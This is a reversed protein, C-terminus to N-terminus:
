TVLNGNARLSNLDLGTLGQLTLVTTTFNGTGATDIRVSTNGGSELLNVYSGLTLPNNDYGPLLADLDIVDGGAGATFSIVSDPGGTTDGALYRFTDVGSGGTLTDAGQGGILLDDNNGGLLSDNGTGGTLTDNGDSGNLTDNGTGGTISNALTNGTGTFNGAGTFALNEVNGLAAISLTTLSTRIEDTGQSAAEIVTDGANDVIFIDNGLGGVLSDAGTGGNLTDNGDGGNLTDAGTSGTISNAATNGTGTFAAAGTYTLNEVNGLAAISLTALTTRIEDVGQAAAEVVIDGANDVIFVDDGLGGVLSDTGTGGNLTDNGDGGNLTDNGTGGTISNALTNGTGTFAGAGTFTLNEINILSALTQTTLSTRIEDTGQGSLETVIDGVNDTLFVDNGLGGVLTDAGTGGNLTDNGSGGTIVNAATNGTGTFNGAGVFTLNEVNALAAITQTTLTTRIEDTGESAAEVVTDTGSNVFYIDNGLGGVMSDNGLGGNLTDDGGNGTLTDNGSGGTISNNLSNGTGTFASAGTYTLNEVNNISAITFTTLATQIEDTGQASLETVTDAVTDVIYVDNGLGGVLTDAGAGGNLTDNGVGGTILNALTNGTGTFDGTGAFSLREINGLAAISYGTLLSRVEDTGEAAAEVVTDLASDVIFVDDGTGGVLSDNGTGGDLTDNDGGGTLTDNLAGGALLNALSDGTLSDAQASGTVNEISLLSDGAADGGSHTNTGLNVTVGLLSASYDVTDTGLGGSFTDAGPSGAFTDNGSGGTLLDAQATGSLLMGASGIGLAITSNLTTTAGNTAETATATVNITTNTTGAALTITLGALQAETFRWSGGGLNNGASFTAGTPVNSLTV